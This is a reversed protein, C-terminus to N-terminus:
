RLGSIASIMRLRPYACRKPMPMARARCASSALPLGSGSNSGSWERTRTVTLDARHGCDREEVVLAADALRRDDIVQGPHVGVEAHADHRRVEIRLRVEGAHEEVLVLHLLQPGGIRGAARDVPREHRQQPARTVDGRLLRLCGRGRQAEHGAVKGQRLGLVLEGALPGLAQVAVLACEAHDGGQTPCQPLSALIRLRIEDQDVDAGVEARDVPSRQDGRVEHRDRECGIQERQLSQAIEPGGQASPAGIPAFRRSRAPSSVPTASRGM